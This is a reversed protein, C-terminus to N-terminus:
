SDDNMGAMKVFGGLLLVRLSYVTKGLKKRFLPPGFGVGFETVRVGMARATLMHGLEHVVILFSLGLLAIVVTV